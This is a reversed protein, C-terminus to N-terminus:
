DFHVITPEVGTVSGVFATNHGRGGDFTSEADFEVDGILGLHM